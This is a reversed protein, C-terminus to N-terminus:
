GRAVVAALRGLGKEFDRGVLKDMNVFVGFVRMGFSSEGSMSWTVETAGGREALDFAIANHAKWPKLFRLDIGVRAPTVETIEMRGEGAKSNGKWRYIAGM